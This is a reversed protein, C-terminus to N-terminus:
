SRGGSDDSLMAGILIIAVIAVAVMGGPGDGGLFGGGFGNRQNQQRAELEEQMAALQQNLKVLDDASATTYNKEVITFNTRHQGDFTTINTLTFPQQVEKLSSDTTIYVPGSFNSPYYTKNTEFRGSAPNEPAHIIGEVQTGDNELTVQMSGTSELDTPQNTGTMALTAAAWGQFDSGPSYQNQLDYPNLLDSTNIEGANYQSYTQNVVTEMQNNASTTQSEISTFTQEYDEFRMLTKASYQETPPKIYVENITLDEGPSNSSGIWGAEYSSENYGSSPGFEEIKTSTEGDKGVTVQVTPVELTTGNQLTYTTSGFGTVDAYFGNNVQGDILDEDAKVSVYSKSVGSQNEALRQIYQITSVQEKWAQIRNYEIRSYFQSINSIAEAKATSKSGAQNLSRVYANKGHILAVTETDQLRNDLMTEMTEGQDASTAGLQYLELKTENENLQDLKSSNVETSEPLGSPGVSVDVINVKPNTMMSLREMPQPTLNRDGGTSGFRDSNDWALNGFDAGVGWEPEAPAGEVRITVSEYAGANEFITVTSKQHLRATTWNDRYLVVHQGGPGDDTSITVQVTAAGWGASDFGVARVDGTDTFTKEYTSTQAFAAGAAFPAAVSAVLLVALIVSPAAERARGVIRMM